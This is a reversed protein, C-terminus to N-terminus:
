RLERPVPVRVLCQLFYLNSHIRHHDMLGSVQRNQMNKTFFHSGPTRGGSSEELVRLNQKLDSLRLSYQRRQSAETIRSARM